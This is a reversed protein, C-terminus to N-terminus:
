KEENTAQLKEILDDLSLLELSSLIMNANEFSLDRTMENPVAITFIGAARAAAIGNPSDELAIVNAPAVQLRKMALQYVAPDPKPQNGVDDRGCIIPFYGDLGLTPLHGAVWQHSASSAIALKIGRDQAEYIVETVGPLIELQALLENDLSRRESLVMERDLPRGVCEVLYDYPDFTYVTGIHQRWMEVPLDVDHRRYLERWSHYDAYETDLILGDFDFIIAELM